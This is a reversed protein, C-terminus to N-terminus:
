NSNAVEALIQAHCSNSQDCFCGLTKGKLESIDNILGSEDLYERYLRLSEELSHDKLKYPNQWKSGKYHFIRKEKIKPDTIFIRGARGTYVNNKDKMWEELDSYGDKRLSKVKICVATTTKDLEESDFNENESAESTTENVVLYGKGASQLRYVEDSEGYQKDDVIITIKLIDAIEPLLKLPRWNRTKSLSSEAERFDGYRERLKKYPLSEWRESFKKLIYKKLKGISKPNNGSVNKFVLGSELLAELLLMSEISETTVANFVPLPIDPLEVAQEGTRKFIFSRYMSSLENQSHSLNDPYNLFEGDIYEYGIEALRDKLYDFDVLYETQNQVISNDINIKIERGFVKNDLDVAKIQWGDRILPDENLLKEELVEGDMVMGMFTEAGSNSITDLLANLMEESRFFFTLANFIAVCDTTGAFKDIKATEEGAANLIRVFNKSKNVFVGESVERYDYEPLRAILEELNEMFPEVAFVNIKNDKWKKIDGGRGSGIDLLTECNVSAIMEAKDMNHLKRMARVDKGRITVEEIPNKIDYWISLATSCANPNERDYRIRHPRWGNDYGFEVIQNAKLRDSEFLVPENDIEFDTLMINGRTTKKDDLVAFKFVNPQDTEILKFDVTLQNVHKWKYVRARKNYGDRIDNMILGDNGYGKDPLEDLVTNTNVYFNEPPMYFKKLQVFQNFNPELEKLIELRKTFPLNRVDKGNDILIDFVLYRKQKVLYEGDFVTRDMSELSSKNSFKLINTPPFVMFSAGDAIFLLKRIGDAKDTVALVNADEALTKMKINVPKVVPNFFKKNLNYREWKHTEPFLKNYEIMAGKMTSAPIPSKSDQRIIAILKLAPYLDQYNSIPKILELEIEYSNFKRKEERVLYWGTVHTLDIRFNKLEDKKEGSKFSWREKRRYSDPSSNQIEQPKERSINSEVSKSLRAFFEYLDVKILNEKTSYFKINNYNEVWSERVSINKIKGDRTRRTQSYSNVNIIQPTLSITEDTIKETAIVIPDAVATYNRSSFYQLVRYFESADVSSIFRREDHNGFRLEIEFDSQRDLPQLLKNVLQQEM